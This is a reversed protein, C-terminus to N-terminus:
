RATTEAPPSLAIEDLRIGLQAHVTRFGFREYLRKARPYSTHLYCSPVRGAFESLACRMLEAGLGRGQLAPTVYIDYILGANEEFRNIVFGGDVVHMSYHRDARFKRYRFRSQIVPEDYYESFLRILQGKTEPTVPRASHDYAKPRDLSMRIMTIPDYRRVFRGMDMSFVAWVKKSNALFRVLCEAIAGLDEDKYAVLFGQRRGEEDVIRATEGDDTYFAWGRGGGPLQASIGNLEATMSLNPTGGSHDQLKEDIPLDYTTVLSCDSGFARDVAPGVKWGTGALTRSLLGKRTDQILIRQFLRAGLERGIRRATDKTFKPNRPSQRMFARATGERTPVLELSLAGEPSQVVIVDERPHGQMQEGM